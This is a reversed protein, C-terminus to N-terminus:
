KFFYIKLFIKNNYYSVTISDSKIEKNAFQSKELNLLNSFIDKHYFNEGPTYIQIEDFDFNYRFLKIFDKIKM